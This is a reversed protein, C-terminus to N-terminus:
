VAAHLAGFLGLRPDSKGALRLFSQRNVRVSVYRGTKGSFAPLGESFTANLIPRAPHEQNRSRESRYWATMVM